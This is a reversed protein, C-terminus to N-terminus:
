LGVAGLPASFSGWGTCGSRFFGGTYHQSGFCQQRKGWGPGIFEYRKSGVAGDESAAAVVSGGPCMCFSYVARGNEAQYTLKYDAAGLHAYPQEMGYQALNIMTQKHEIRLGIAFAKQEMAIQQQHLAAFTDRASHGIALVAVNATIEREGNIEIAQLHGDEVILKTVQQEFRVEGGAQEIAQRMSKVVQKLRDTGIHPKAQYLIDEPAGFRVFTELVKRCRIDKIVSNLKGDSFTGAGGEGFQVNSNPDLMGTQWFKEVDVTRRDVDRGRELLVPRYGQEALTLAAFLGAPGAGIVVPRGYFSQTGTQFIPYQEQGVVTITDKKCRQAVKAEEAIGAIEVTYICFISAKKEPM